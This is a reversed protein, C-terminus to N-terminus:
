KVEIFNQLMLNLTIDEDGMRSIAVEGSVLLLRTFGISHGIDAAHPTTQELLEVNVQTVKFDTALHDEHYPQEVVKFDVLKGGDQNVYHALDNEAFAVGDYVTFPNQFAEKYDFVPFRVVNIAKDNTAEVVLEFSLYGSGGVNIDPSAFSSAILSLNSLGTGNATITFVRSALAQSIISVPQVISTDTAEIEGQLRVEVSEARGTNVISKFVGSPPIIGTLPTAIGNFNGTAFSYVKNNEDQAMLTFTSGPVGKISIRKTRNGGGPAFSSTISYIKHNKTDSPSVSKVVANNRKKAKM